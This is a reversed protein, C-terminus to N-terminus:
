ALIVIVAAQRTRRPDVSILGDTCGLESKLRAAYELYDGKRGVAPFVEFIVAILTMESRRLCRYCCLLTATQDDEGVRKLCENDSHAGSRRDVNSLACYREGPASQPLWLKRSPPHTDQGCYCCAAIMLTPEKYREGRVM